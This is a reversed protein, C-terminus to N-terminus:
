FFTCHRLIKYLQMCFFYYFYYIFFNVFNLIHTVSNGFVYRLNAVFFFFYLFLFACTCLMVCAKDRSQNKKWLLNLPFLRLALYLWLSSSTFPSRLTAVWRLTSDKRLTQCFTLPTRRSSSTIFFSVSHQPRFNFLHSHSVSPYLYGGPFTRQM